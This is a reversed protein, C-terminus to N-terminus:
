FIKSCLIAIALTSWSITLLSYLTILLWHHVKLKPFDGESAYVNIFRDRLYIFRTLDEIMCHYDYDTPHFEKAALSNLNRKFSTIKNKSNYKEALEIPDDIVRVYFFLHLFSEQYNIYEKITYFFVKWLVPLVLIWIIKYTYYFHHLIIIDYFLACAMLQRPLITVFYLIIYQYLLMYHGELVEIIPVLKIVIHALLPAITKTRNIVFFTFVEMLADDYIKKIKEQLKVFTQNPNKFSFIKEYLMVGFIITLILCCLFYVIDWEPIIEKPLRVKILRRYFVFSCFSFGLLFLLFQQIKFFLKTM